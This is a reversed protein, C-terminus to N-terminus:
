LVDPFVDNNVCYSPVIEVVDIALTTNSSGIGWIM